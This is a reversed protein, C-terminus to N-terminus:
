TCIVNNDNGRIKM